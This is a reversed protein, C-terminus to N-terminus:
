SEVTSDVGHFQCAIEMGKEEVKKALLHLDSFSVLVM